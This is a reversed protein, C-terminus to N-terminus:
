IVLAYIRPPSPTPTLSSPNLLAHIFTLRALTPGYHIRFRGVLNSSFGILPKDAYQLHVAARCISLWDSALFHRPDLSAHDLTSLLPHIWRIQHRNISGNIEWIALNMPGVHPGDPDQRDWIPGMTAGHVKSDPSSIRSLQDILWADPFPWFEAPRSWFNILDSSHYLSDIWCTQSWDGQVTKGSTGEQFIPRSRSRWMKAKWWIELSCLVSVVRYTRCCGCICMLIMYMSNVLCKQWM